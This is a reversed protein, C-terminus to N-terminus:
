TTKSLFLSKGPPELPLSGVQWHLLCLLCSNSEQTLLIGQLLTHFGVGTNKGASAGHFTSGLPQLSDPM